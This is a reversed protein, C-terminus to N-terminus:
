TILKQRIMEIFSQYGAQAYPDSYPNSEATLLHLCERMRACAAQAGQTWATVKNQDDSCYYYLGTDDLVLTSVPFVGELNFASAHTM